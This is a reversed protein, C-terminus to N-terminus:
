HIVIERHEDFILDLRRIQNMIKNPICIIEREFKNLKSISNILEKLTLFSYIHLRLNESLQFKKEGNM